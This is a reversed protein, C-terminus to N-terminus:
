PGPRYPAPRASEAALEELTQDLARTWDVTSERVAPAANPDMMAHILEEILKRRTGVSDDLRVRLTPQRGPLAPTFTAELVGLSVIKTSRVRIPARRLIDRPFPVRFSRGEATVTFYAETGGFVGRPPAYHYTGPEVRYLLPQQPRAVLRYVEPVTADNKGEEGEFDIWLKGNSTEGSPLTIKGGLVVASIGQEPAGNIPPTTGQCASLGLFGAALAGTLIRQRSMARYAYGM